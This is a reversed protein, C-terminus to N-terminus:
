KGISTKANMDSFADVIENAVQHASVDAFACRAMLIVNYENLTDFVIPDKDGALVLGARLVRKCRNRAVANGLRKPAIYAIGGFGVRNESTNKEVFVFLSRRRYPRDSKIIRAIDKSSLAESRVM